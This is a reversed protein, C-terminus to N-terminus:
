RKHTVPLGLRAKESTAFATADRESNFAKMFVVGDEIVRVYHRKELDETEFTEMEVSDSM